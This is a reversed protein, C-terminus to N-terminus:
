QRDGKTKVITALTLLTSRLKLGALDAAAPNAEFKIRHDNEFLNLMGGQECFGPSECITLVPKGALEARMEGWAAPASPSIFLAQCASGELRWQAVDRFVKVAIRRGQIEKGELGSQLAASQADEGLAGVIISSDAGAVAPWEAFKLFNLVFAARVAEAQQAGAGAPSVLLALLLLGALRRRTATPGFIRRSGRRKTPAV